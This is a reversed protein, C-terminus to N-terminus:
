QQPSRSTFDNVQRGLNFEETLLVSDILSFSASGFFMCKFGYNLVANRPRLEFAKSLTSNTDHAPAWCCGACHPVGSQCGGNKMIRGNQNCSRWSQHLRGTACWGPSPAPTVPQCSSTALLQAWTSRQIVIFRTFRKVSTARTEGTEIESDSSQIM